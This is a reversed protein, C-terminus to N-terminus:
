TKQRESNATRHLAAGTGVLVRILAFGTLVLATLV